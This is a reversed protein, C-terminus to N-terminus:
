LECFDILIAEFKFKWVHLVEADFVKSIKSGETKEVLFDEFNEIRRNEILFNITRL